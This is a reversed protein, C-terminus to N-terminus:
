LVGELAARAARRGRAAHERTTREALGLRLGAQAHTLGLGGSLWLADRQRATLAALALECLERAELATGVAPADCYLAEGELPVLDARRRLADRAMRAKQALSRAQWDVFTSLKYGAGKKEHSVVARCLAEFCLSLADDGDMWPNARMARAAAAFALGANAAAVARQADSLRLPGPRSGAM